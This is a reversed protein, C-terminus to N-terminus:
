SCDVVVVCFNLNKKKTKQSSPSDFPFFFFFITQISIFCRKIARLDVNLSAQYCWVILNVRLYKTSISKCAFWTHTNPTKKKKFIKKNNSVCFLLLLLFFTLDLARAVAFLFSFYFLSLRVWILCNQTSRLHKQLTFVNITSKRNVLRLINLLGSIFVIEDHMKKKGTNFNFTNRVSWFFFFVTKRKKNREYLRQYRVFVVYFINWRIWLVFVYFYFFYKIIPNLIIQSKNDLNFQLLRKLNM